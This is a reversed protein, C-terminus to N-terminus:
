WTGAERGITLGAIGTDSTVQIEADVLNELKFIM